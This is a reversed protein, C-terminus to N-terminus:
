QREDVTQHGPPRVLDLAQMAVIEGHRGLGILQIYAHRLSAPPSQNQLTFPSTM